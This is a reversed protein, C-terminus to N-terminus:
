RVTLEGKMGGEEHGPVSCYFTYTGASLRANVRSTANQGVVPGKQDLGNGKVAINHAVPSPNPMVLALSGAQARARNAVFALAGSPDAAIELTGGKAIVPKASIKPVGVTALVGQDEGPQAAVAAVYAAVDRADKGRVLNAPMTSNRRVNAIQEEVIGAITQEGFGDRRAQEFAEDLNPGQTGKTGARALIHCSGCQGGGAFLKKGNVLDPAEERGGACGAAFAAGLLAAALATSRRRLSTPAPM